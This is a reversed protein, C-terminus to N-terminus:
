LPSFAHTYSCLLSIAYQPSKHTHKSFRFSKTLTIYPLYHPFSLLYLGMAHSHFVQFLYPFACNETPILMKNKKLTYHRQFGQLAPFTLLFSNISAPVNTLLSYCSDLPFRNHDSWPLPVCLKNNPSGNM